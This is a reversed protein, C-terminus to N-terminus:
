LEGGVQHLGPLGQPPPRVRATGISNAHRSFGHLTLESLWATLPRLRVPQHWTVDAKLRSLVSGALHSKNNVHMEPLNLYCLTPIEIHLKQAAELITTSQPVVIHHEDITINILGM